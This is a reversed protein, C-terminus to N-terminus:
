VSSAMANSGAVVAAMARKPPPDLGTATWACTLARTRRVLEMSFRNFCRRCPRREASCRNCAAISSITAWFMFLSLDHNSDIVLLANLIYLSNAHPLARQHQTFANLPLGALAPM